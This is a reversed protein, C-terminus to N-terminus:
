KKLLGANWEQIKYLLEQARAAPIKELFERIEEIPTDIRPNTVEEFSLFDVISHNQSFGMMFQELQQGLKVNKRICEIKFNEYMLEDVSLTINKNGM